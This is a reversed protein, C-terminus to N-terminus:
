VGWSYVIDFTGQRAADLDFVSMIDARWPAEINKGSLLARTVAVSDPDIDIALM